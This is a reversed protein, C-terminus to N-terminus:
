KVICFLNNNANYITFDFFIARTGSTIWSNEKLYQVLEVTYNKKLPLDVYYGGGGYSTIMGWHTYGGLKEETSYTWRHLSFSM